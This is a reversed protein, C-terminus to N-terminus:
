IRFYLKSKVTSFTYFFVTLMTNPTKGDGNERYRYVMADQYVPILVLAKLCPEATMLPIENLPTNDMKFRRINGITEGPRSHNAKIFATYYQELFQNVTPVKGKVEEHEGSLIKKVKDEAM